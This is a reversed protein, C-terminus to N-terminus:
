VEDDEPLLHKFHEVFNSLTLRGQSDLRCGALSKEVPAETETNNLYFIKLYKEGVPAGEADVDVYLEFFFSAGFGPTAPNEIGLTEIFGTLTWDHTSYQIVRYENEESPLNTAQNLDSVIGSCRSQYPAQDMRSTMDKLLHGFQMQKLRLSASGLAFSRRALDTIKKKFEPTYWDPMELGSKEEIGLTSYVAPFVTFKDFCYGLDRELIERELVSEEYMKKVEESQQIKLREADREQKYKRGDFNLLYDDQAPVTHVPAPVWSLDNNWRFQDSPPYMGALVASASEICRDADSSRSYVERISDSLFHDYRRRIFQGLKYMRLRGQNNLHGYGEPWYSPDRYKDKPAFKFPSRDGHRHMILLWILKPKSEVKSNM